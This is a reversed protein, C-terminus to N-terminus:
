SFYDRVVDRLRQPDAELDVEVLWQRDMLARRKLVERESAMVDNDLWIFPRSFDIAETKQESWVTPKIRDIDAHFHPPLVSKMIRRAYQPDGDMCHTTLWFVSCPHDAHAHAFLVRFLDELGEAPEGARYRDEHILTGDIDLYINM